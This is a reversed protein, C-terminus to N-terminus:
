LAEDLAQRRETCPSVEHQMTSVALLALLFFVNSMAM